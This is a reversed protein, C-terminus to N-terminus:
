ADMILIPIDDENGVDDEDGLPPPEAVGGVKYYVELALTCLTTNYVRSECHESQSASEWYGIDRGGEGAGALVVQHSTLEPAFQRDWVAWHRGGALRKAQTIYYWYYIPNRGLPENWRCTAGDLVALGREIHGPAKYGLLQLGLVGVGTLNSKAPSSYGFGGSPAANAVLGAVARELSEDLGDCTIRAIKAAKIAQVCWGTYSLDNRTGPQCNYTWGGSANQGRVIVSVARRAVPELLPNRTMGYAECLAFAAISHSYDYGDRGAFRGDAEQAGQLWKLATEVTYGFEPSNPTEGHALFALLALGTMAPAAGVGHRGGGTGGSELRWSGDEEQISKLWRLANLVAAESASTAGSGSDAASGSAATVRHSYIGPMVVSCKVRAVSEISPLPGEAMPAQTPQPASSLDAARTGTVHMAAIDPVLPIVTPEVSEPKEDLDPIPVPKPLLQTTIPRDVARRPSALLSVILLVLMPVIVASVPSLLRKVQLLAWKHEGTTRPRRLGLVTRSLTERFSLEDFLELLIPHIERTPSSM